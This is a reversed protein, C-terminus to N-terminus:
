PSPSPTEAYLPELVCIELTALTKDWKPEALAERDPGGFVVLTGTSTSSRLGILTIRGGAEVDANLAFSVSITNIALNVRTSENVASRTLGVPVRGSLLDFAQVAAPPGARHGAAAWLLGPRHQAPPVRVRAGSIGAGRHDGLGGAARAPQGAGRERPDADAAASGARRGAHAVADRLGEGLRRHGGAPGCPGRHRGQFSRRRRGLAPDHPQGSHVVESRPTTRLSAGYSKLTVNAAFELSVNNPQGQVSSSQRASALAFGPTSSALNLAAGGFATRAVSTTMLPTASSVEVSPFSEGASISQRSKLVFSFEVTPAGGGGCDPLFPDEASARCGGPMVGGRLTLVGESRDWIGWGRSVSYAGPGRIPLYGSPTQYGTLGSLTVAAGSGGLSALPCNLAMSVRVNSFGGFMDSDEEISLSAFGAEVNSGLVSGNCRAELSVGASEVRVLPRVSAANKLPNALLFGFHLDTRAPHERGPAM